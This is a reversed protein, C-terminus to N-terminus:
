FPTTIKRQVFRNGVAAMVRSGSNPSRVNAALDFRPRSTLENAICVSSWKRGPSQPVISEMTPASEM